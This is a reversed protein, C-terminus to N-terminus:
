YYVIVLGDGGSANPVGSSLSGGGGNGPRGSTSAGALVGSPGNLGGAGPGADEIFCFGADIFQRAGFGKIEEPFFWQTSSIPRPNICFQNVAGGTSGINPNQARYHITDGITGYGSRCGMNINCSCFCGDPISCSGPIASGGINVGGVGGIGPGGTVCGCFCLCSFPICSTNPVVFIGVCIATCLCGCSGGSSTQASVTTTIGNGYYNGASAGPVVGTSGCSVSISNLCQYQFCSICYFYYDHCVPLSNSVHFTCCVCGTIAFKCYGFSTDPGTPPVGGCNNITGGIGCGGVATQKVFGHIFGPTNCAFQNACGEYGQCTTGTCRAAWICNASFCCCVCTSGAGFNSSSASGSQCCYRVTHTAFSCNCSNANRVCAIAEGQPPYFLGDIYWKLCQQLSASSAGGTASICSGFSSTCGQSGVCVSYSQGPTVPFSADAYGGGAGGQNFIQPSMSQGCTTFTCCQPVNCCNCCNSATACSFNCNSWNFCLFKCGCSNDIYWQFCLGGCGFYRTCAECACCGQIFRGCVTGDIICCTGSQPCINQRIQICCDACQFSMFSVACCNTHLVGSDNGQFCGPTFGRGIAPGGGGVVVARVCSVGSPTNWTYAGTDDYQQKNRFAIGQSQIPSTVFRGM